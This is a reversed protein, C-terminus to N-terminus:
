VTARVPDRGLLAVLRDLAPADPEVPVPAAFPRREMVVDGLKAFLAECVPILPGALDDLGDTPLGQSVALDWGHVVHEITRMIMMQAGSAPGIPAMITKEMAGPLDLAATLDKAAEQYSEASPAALTAPDFRRDQLLDAIMADGAVLHGVLTRASFGPCPTSAEWDSVQSVLHGVVRHAAQLDQPGTM